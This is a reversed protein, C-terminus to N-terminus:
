FLDIGFGNKMFKSFLKNTFSKTVKPFKSDVYNMFGQVRGYAVGLM